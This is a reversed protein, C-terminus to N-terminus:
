NRSIEKGRCRWHLGRRGQVGWERARPAGHHLLRNEEHQALPARWDHPLRRPAQGVQPVSHGPGRAMGVTQHSSLPIFFHPSNSRSLPKAIPSVCRTTSSARSAAAWWRPTPGRPRANSIFRYNQGTVSSHTLHLPAVLSSHHTPRVPSDTAAWGWFASPFFRRVQLEQLSSSVQGCENCIYHTRIQEDTIEPVPPHWFREKHSPDQHTCGRGYRCVIKRVATQSGDVGLPLDSADGGSDLRSGRMDGVGVLESPSLFTAALEREQQQM